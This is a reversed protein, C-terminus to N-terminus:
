TVETGARGHRAADHQAVRARKAPPPPAPHGRGRRGGRVSAQQRRKPRKASPDGRGGPHAAGGGESQGTGRATDTAPPAGYTTQRLLAAGGQGGGRVHRM